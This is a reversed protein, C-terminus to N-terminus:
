IVANLRNDSYFCLNELNESQVIKMDPLNNM